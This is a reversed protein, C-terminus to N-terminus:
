NTDNSEDRLKRVPETIKKNTHSFGERCGELVDSTVDFFFKRSSFVAQSPNLSTIKQTGGLIKQVEEDLSRHCRSYGEHSNIVVHSQIDITVRKIEPHSLTAPPPRDPCSPALRALPQLHRGRSAPALWGAPALLPAAAAGPQQGLPPPRRQLPLPPPLFLFFFLPLCYTKFGLNVQRRM